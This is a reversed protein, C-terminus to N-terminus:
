HRGNAGIRTKAIGAVQLKRWRIGVVHRNQREKHAHAVAFAVYIDRRFLSSKGLLHVFRSLRYDRESKSTRVQDLSERLSFCPKAREADTVDRLDGHRPCQEALNGHAPVQRYRNGTHLQFGSISNFHCGIRHLQLRHIHPALRM